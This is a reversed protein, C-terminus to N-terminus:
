IDTARNSQFFRVFMRLTLLSLHQLFYKCGWRASLLPARLRAPLEQCLCGRKCRKPTQRRECDVRASWGPSLINRGPEPDVAAGQFNQPPWCRHVADTLDVSRATEHEPWTLWEQYIEFIPKGFFCDDMPM